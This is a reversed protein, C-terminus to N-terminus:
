GIAIDTGFQNEGPPIQYNILTIIGGSSIASNQEQSDVTFYALSPRVKISTDHGSIVM